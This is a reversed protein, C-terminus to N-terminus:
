KKDDSSPNEQRSSSLTESTDKDTIIQSPPLTNTQEDHFLHDVRRRLRGGKYRVPLGM